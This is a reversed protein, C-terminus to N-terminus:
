LNNLQKLQQLFQTDLKTLKLMFEDTLKSIASIPNRIKLSPSNSFEGLNYVAKQIKYIAANKIWLERQEFRVKEFIGASKIYSIFKDINALVDDFGTDEIVSTKIIPVIWDSHKPRMFHM